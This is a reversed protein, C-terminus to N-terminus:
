SCSHCGGVAGGDGVVVVASVVVAGANSAPSDAFGGVSRDGPSDPVLTAAASLVVMGVSLLLLQFLWRVLPHRLMRVFARVCCVKTARDMGFYHLLMGCTTGNILLTMIALGAIMFMIKDGVEEAINDNEM